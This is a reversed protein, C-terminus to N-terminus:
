IHRCLIKLPAYREQQAVGGVQRQTKKHASALNSSRVDTRIMIDWQTQSDFVCLCM